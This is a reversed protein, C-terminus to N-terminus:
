TGGYCTGTIKRHVQPHLDARSLSVGKLTKRVPMAVRPLPILIVRVEGAGVLPERPMKTSTTPRTPTPVKTQNIKLSCRKMNEESRLPMQVKSQDGRKFSRQM